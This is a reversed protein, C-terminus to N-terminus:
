RPAHFLVSNPDMFDPLRSTKYLNFQRSDKKESLRVVKPAANFGPKVGQCSPQLPVPPFYADSQRFTRKEVVRVRKHASVRM